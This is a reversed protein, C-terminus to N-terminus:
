KDKEKDDDVVAIIKPKKGRNFAKKKMASKPQEEVNDL